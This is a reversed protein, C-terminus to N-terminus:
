SERGLIVAANNGGFAFSSSMAYRLRTAREGTAVFHLPPLDPDPVGDWLHPPLRNERNEPHLALWCFAAELAGAAGLTHGTLAKTGSVPLDAGFLDHVVRAEMADNQPTATGHLNLYDIDAAQLGAQQLAGQIALRAGRGGPEPASIHHGDSSEGVGCLVVPGPEATVLFLAAAEGINIGKRNASFPNCREASVSELSSFGAITFACLTDVGGALVVDCIGAQILRQASALVKAGSSCATSVTYTPGSIGLADALYSSTSGLAQQGYHFQPPFQGSQQKARMALEAEWMGSTSTGIVVGVREAPIGALSKEVAPQIQQLAALLLRNNRSQYEVRDTALEPLTEQVLGLMLDREALYAPSYQATVQMGPSVCEFLHRAVEAKGTGLACLVGLENLYIKEQNGM